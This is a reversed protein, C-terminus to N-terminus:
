EVDTKINDEFKCTPKGLPRKREHSSVLIRNKKEGWVVGCACGLEDEKVHDHYRHKAAIM